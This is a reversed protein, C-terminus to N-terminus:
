QNGTQFAGSLWLRQIKGFDDYCPQLVVREIEVTRGLDVQVWKVAGQQASISSHYGFILSPMPIPAPLKTLPETSANPSHPM